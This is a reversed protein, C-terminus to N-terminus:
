LCNVRVFQDLLVKSIHVFIFIDRIDACVSIQKGDGHYM